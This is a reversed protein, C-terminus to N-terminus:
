AWVQRNPHQAVLRAKESVIRQARVMMLGRMASAAAGVQVEDARRPEGQHESFSRKVDRPAVLRVAAGLPPLDMCSDPLGSTTTVNAALSSLLTFPAKYQVQIDRGPAGGEYLVLATGSAFSGTPLNRILAYKDILPYSKEPGIAEYRVGIIGLMDSTSSTMDYGMIVPNFSLFVTKIQYLGNEPSSLDRLDHNIATLIRFNSFKPKVVVVALDDHAAATTGNVGRAVVTATKGSTEWVQIEELDIAVIAGPQLGGLDYKLLLTTAVNTVAGDLRNMEEQQGSFLHRKTEEILDSVTAM